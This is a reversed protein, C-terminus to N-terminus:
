NLKKETPDAGHLLYIESCLVKGTAADHITIRAAFYTDSPGPLPPLLVPPQLPLKKDARRPTTVPLNCWKQKKGQSDLLVSRNDSVKRVSYTYHKRIPNGWYLLEYCGPAYERLRLHPTDSEIATPMEEQPTAAIRCLVESRIDNQQTEPAEVREQPINLLISVTCAGALVVALLWILLMRKTPLPPRLM